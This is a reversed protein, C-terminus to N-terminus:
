NEKNATQYLFADSNESNEFDSDGQSEWWKWGDADSDDVDYAVTYSRHSNQPAEANLNRIRRSPVRAETLADLIRGLPQGTSVLSGGVCSYLLERLYGAEDSDLTLIFAPGVPMIKRASAM